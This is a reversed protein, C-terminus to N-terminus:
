TEATRRKSSKGARKVGAEKAIPVIALTPLGTFKTVDDTTKIRDDMVFRITILGLALFLGAFFGLLINRTRNPSASNTPVLAVSMLNPEDTAMTDAIYKIAVSAYENAIAAAEIASASSVTLYLLRTDKPNTVTLMSQMQSYSYGLHLNAIVMEHVEWTQFVEIYDSALYSGIQLDALNLASDSSNVVYLKSTAEYIPTVLFITYGAALIAGLLALLIIMRLHAYFQYLLEILDIEIEGEERHPSLAVPEARHVSPQDPTTEPRSM